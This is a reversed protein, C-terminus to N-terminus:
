AESVDIEFLGPHDDIHLRPQKPFQDPDLPAPTVAASLSNSWLTLTLRTSLEVTLPKSIPAAAQLEDLAHQPVVLREPHNPLTFTPVPLPVKRNAPRALRLPKRTVPYLAAYLGAFTVVHSAGDRTLRCVPVGEINRQEVLHPPLVSTDSTLLKAVAWLGDTRALADVNHLDVLLQWVDSPQANRHFQELRRPIRKMDRAFLETWRTQALFANAQRDRDTDFEAIVQERMARVQRQRLEGLEYTMVRRTRHLPRGYATALEILQPDSPDPGRWPGPVSVYREVLEMVLASARKQRQRVAPTQDIARELMTRPVAFVASVEDLFRPRRSPVIGETEFRRYVKPSIGLARVVDDARLGCARRVDAIAWEARNGANMLLWPHVKLARALAQIRPPDPVRHGNEYALIQAKTAGVAKALEEATMAQAGSRAYINTRHALLESPSFDALGRAM